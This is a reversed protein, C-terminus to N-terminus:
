RVEHWMVEQDVYPKLHASLGSNTILDVKKRLLRELHSALGMFNDFTPAEFDVLFDVDSKRRQRGTAYSGFLGIRKVRYKKLAADNTNLLRLIERRTLSVKRKV